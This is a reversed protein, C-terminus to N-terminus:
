AARGTRKLDLRLPQAIVPNANRTVSVVIYIENTTEDKIRDTETVDTAPPVRGIHTRVIRPTGSVPEQVTRSSEVLSAAIGSAAVTGTDTDDGFADTGTGRLVSIRTTAVIM